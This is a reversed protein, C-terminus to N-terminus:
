FLMNSLFTYEETIEINHFSSLDSKLITNNTSGIFNM